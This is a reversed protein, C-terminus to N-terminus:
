LHAGNTTIMLDTLLADLKAYGPCTDQLHKRVIALLREKSRALEDMERIINIVAETNEVSLADIRIQETLHKRSEAITM